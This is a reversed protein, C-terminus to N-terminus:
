VKDVDHHIMEQLRSSLENLRFRKVLHRLEATFPAYASDIREIEDLRAHIGKVHGIAAAELLGRLRQQSPVLKVPRAPRAALTDDARPIWDIGTHLRVKALLEALVVPKVIFDNCPMEELHRVSSVDFANASVIIVPLTAHGRERIARCVSWGDQGPMAIDLLVLDFPTRALAELCAAGSGAQVIDFGLPSLMADLLRRQSAQDDVVLIRKRSGLYGAMTGLPKSRESPRRVETLYIKLRFTSGQGPTSTV